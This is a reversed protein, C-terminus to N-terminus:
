AAQGEIVPKSENNIAILEGDFSDKIKAILVDTAIDCEDIKEQILIAEDITYVTPNDEGQLYKHRQSEETIVAVNRQLKKSFMKVHHKKAKFARLKRLRDVDVSGPEVMSVTIDLKRQEERCRNNLEDGNIKGNEFLRVHPICRDELESVIKERDLSKGPSPPKVIEENMVHLLKRSLEEIQKENVKPNVELREIETLVLKYSSTKAKARQEETLISKYM